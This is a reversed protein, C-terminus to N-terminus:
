HNVYFETAALLSWTLHSLATERRQTNKSLYDAVLQTEAAAPRRSLVSLFLEDSLAGPDSHKALRDLLNGPRAVLLKQVRDDNMWFLAAKVSVAVDDEPERPQNAFAQVFATQVDALAPAGEREADPKEPTALDGTAVLVSKALQEASLRKEPFLLFSEPPSASQGPTMRSARQYAQTLALERLMWKMDFKHAALESSLLELLEPHSPPNKGHHLDLPHVIGRGMLIFWLRNAINRTFNANEAKPLERALLALGSFPPDGQQAAPVEFDQGGPIRPGTEHKTPDFVSIFDLKKTMAKEAVAPTKSGNQISTNLFVSYLGQFDLQKYEDIFLHNHCQACQLDQGLFLRGVDRTLGPYDVPNTGYNELRKTYFFGAGRTTEDKPDPHLIERVLQDWPKNAAFSRGLYKLWEDHDGRREMLMVHFLQTMRRPFEESALLRDILKERKDANTDDAFQRVEEITPIRGAFDLYARRAFEYDDAVPAPTQGTAKAAILADVCQPLSEQARLSAGIVAWGFLSLLVIRRM